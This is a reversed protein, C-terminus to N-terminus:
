DVKADPVKVMQAAVLLRKRIRPRKQCDGAQKSGQRAKLTHTRRLGDSNKEQQTIQFIVANTYLARIWVQAM